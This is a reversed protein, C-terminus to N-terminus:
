DSLLLTEETSYGDDDGETPPTVEIEFDTDSEEEEESEELRKHKAALYKWKRNFFDM